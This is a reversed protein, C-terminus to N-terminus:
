SWYEEWDRRLAELLRSAAKTEGANLEWRANVVRNSFGSPFANRDFNRVGRLLRDLAELARQFEARNERTPETERLIGIADDLYSVLAPAPPPAGPPPKTDLVTKAQMELEEALVGLQQIRRRVLRALGTEWGNPPPRYNPTARDLRAQRVSQVSAMGLAEAIDQHAPCDTLRDTVDIFDM